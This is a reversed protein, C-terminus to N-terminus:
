CVDIGERPAPGIESLATRNEDQEDAFILTFQRLHGDPDNCERYAYLRMDDRVSTTLPM